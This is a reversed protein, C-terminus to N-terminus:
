FRLANFNKLQVVGGKTSPKMGTILEPKTDHFVMVVAFPQKANGSNKINLMKKCGHHM